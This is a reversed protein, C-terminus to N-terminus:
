LGLGLTRVSIRVRIALPLTLRNGTVREVRMKCCNIFPRHRTTIYIGKPMCINCSQIFHDGGFSDDIAM